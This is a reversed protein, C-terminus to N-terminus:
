HAVKQGPEAAIAIESEVDGLPITKWPLRPRVIGPEKGYWAGPREELELVEFNLGGDYRLVTKVGNALILVVIRHMGSNLLHGPILCVSRFLGAALPKDRTEPDTENSSTTFAVIQQGTLLHLCVHLRADPVLNTFDIEVRLPTSTGIPDDPRGDQPSICVRRLRVKENGPADTADPWAQLTQSSMAASQYRAIVDAAPGDHML